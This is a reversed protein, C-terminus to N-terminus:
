DIDELGGLADFLAPLFRELEMAMLSFDADFRAVADDADVDAAEELVLDLFRLRKISLDDCLVCGVREEWEVGLRTVLKGTELHMRIEDSGLDLKKGRIVGGNEVPEKLECEDTVVISAPPQKELWRTMSLAPAQTVEVPRAKLSGLTERLLSLLEEAKKPTASDIVIWGAQPDIYAYLHNSRTFARPLLDVVIEDKLRTKEKRGVPRGQELEIQEVKEDLAERIVAAPLIREERRQCIMVRGNAAHVLLDSHRGLPPAWGTSHTDLGGCPKFARSQLAEELVDPTLDFRETLRYIQLNRFWM